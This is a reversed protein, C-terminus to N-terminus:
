PHQKERKVAVNTAGTPTAGFVRLEACSMNESCVNTAHTANDDTRERSNTSDWFSQPVLRIGWVSQAADLKAMYWKGGVHDTWKTNDDSSKADTWEGDQTAKVQIKWSMFAGNSDAKAQYRFGLVSTAQTFTVTLAAEAFTPCNVIGNSDNGTNWSAEWPTSASGDLLRTAWDDYRTSQTSFWGADLQIDYGDETAVLPGEESMLVAPEDDAGGPLAATQATQADDPADIAVEDDSVRAALAATPFLSLTMVVALLLASWRKWTKKM